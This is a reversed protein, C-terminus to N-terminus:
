RHPDAAVGEVVVMSSRATAQRLERAPRYAPSDWWERARELDDFELVVLRNPTWEGELVVTRGGRVAYRGGFAGVTAEALRKYEEYRVPDHVEIDVIVYAPM